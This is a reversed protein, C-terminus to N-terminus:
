CVHKHSVCGAVTIRWTASPSSTGHLVLQQWALMGLCQSDWSCMRHVELSPFLWTRTVANGTWTALAENGWKALAFGSTGSTWQWLMIFRYCQQSCIFWCYNSGGLMMLDWRVVLHYGPFCQGGDSELSQQMDRACILWLLGCRCCSLSLVITHLREWREQKLGCM